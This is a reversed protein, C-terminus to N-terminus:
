RARRTSTRHRTQPPPTRSRNRSTPPRAGASDRSRIHYHAKSGGASSENWARDARSDRSGGRSRSSERTRHGPERRELRRTDRSSPRPSASPEHRRTRIGRTSGRQPSLSRDRHPSPSRPYREARRDFPKSSPPARSINQSSLAQERPSRPPDESEQWGHGSGDDEGMASNRHRGQALAPPIGLEPEGQQTQGSSGAPHASNPLNHGMAPPPGGGQQFNPRNGPGPGNMNYPFPRMPYPGGVQGPFNGMPGGMMPRNPGMMGYGPTPRGFREEGNNPEEDGSPPRENGMDMEHPMNMMGMPGMPVRMNPGMPGMMGGMPRMPMAGMMPNMGVGMGRMDGAMPNGANFVNIKKKLQQDERLQKQRACYMNWSFENFGYNFYDTIDAGPKRWPKDEAGELDYDYIDKGDYQGVADIDLGARRGMPGTATESTAQPASPTTTDKATDDNTSETGPQATTGPSAADKKPEIIIELDSESDYDEAEGEVENEGEPAVAEENSTSHSPEGTSELNGETVSPKEISQRSKDDHKEDTAGNDTALTAQTDANEEDNKFDSGYLFEDIDSNDM